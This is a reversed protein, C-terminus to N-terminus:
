WYGNCNGSCQFSLSTCVQGPKLYHDGKPLSAPTFFSAIKEADEVSFGFFSTISQELEQM